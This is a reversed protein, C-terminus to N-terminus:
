NVAVDFGRDWLFVWFKWMGSIIIYINLHRYNGTFFGFENKLFWSYNVYPFGLDIVWCFRVKLWFGYLSALVVRFGNLRSRSRPSVLFFAVLKHSRCPILIDSHFIERCLSLLSFLSHSPFELTPPLPPFIDFNELNKLWYFSIIKWRFYVYRKLM